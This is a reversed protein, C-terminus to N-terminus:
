VQNFHELDTRKIAFNIFPTFQILCLSWISISIQLQISSLKLTLTPTHLPITLQCKANPTQKVVAIYLIVPRPSEMWSCKPFPIFAKFFSGKMHSLLGVPWAKEIELFSFLPFLRCFMFLKRVKEQCRAICYVFKNWSGRKKM